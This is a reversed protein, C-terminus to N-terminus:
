HLGNSNGRFAKREGVARDLDMGLLVWSSRRIDAEKWLFAGSPGRLPPDLRGEWIAKSIRNPRVGLIAGVERTSKFM